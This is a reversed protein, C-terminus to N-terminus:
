ARRLGFFDRLFAYHQDEHEGRQRLKILAGRVEAPKGKVCVERGGSLTLRTYNGACGPEEEIAAILDSNVTIEGEVTWPGPKVRKLIAWKSM